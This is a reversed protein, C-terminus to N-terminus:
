NPPLLSLLPPARVSESLAQLEPQYSITLMPLSCIPPPPPPSFRGNNQRFHSTLSINTSQYSPYHISLHRVQLSYTTPTYTTFANLSSSHTGVVPPHTRNIIFRAAQNNRIATRCARSFSSIVRHPNFSDIECPRLTANEATRREVTGHM